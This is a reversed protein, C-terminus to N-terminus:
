EDRDAAEIVFKTGRVGLTVTSTRFRVADPSSKALKGSIVALSGRKVSAELAGEHTAPNFEYKDLTLSANSGASLMTQDRLTIGVASDPGTTVRDAAQVKSGAAVPFKSGQREVTVTGRATKVTGAEDAAWACAMTGAILATVLMRLSGNNSKWMATGM